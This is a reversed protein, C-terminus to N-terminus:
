LEREHSNMAQFPTTSIASWMERTAQPISATHNFPPPGYDLMNATWVGVGRLGHAAALAYKISLSEIDDYWLQTVAGTAVDAFNLWPAQMITDRQPGTSSNPILSAMASFEVAVAGSDTCNCDRRCFRDQTKLKGKTQGSDTKTFHDNKHSVHMLSCVM